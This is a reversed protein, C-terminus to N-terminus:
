VNIGRASLYDEIDGVIYGTGQTHLIDYCPILLQDICGSEKLKKYVYSPFVSWKEACAHLIYIIFEFSDKTM